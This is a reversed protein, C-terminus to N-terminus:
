VHSVTYTNRGTRWVHAWTCLWVSMLPTRQGLRWARPEGTDLTEPSRARHATFSERCRKRYLQSRWAHTLLVLSVCLSVTHWLFRWEKVYVAELYECFAFLESFCMLSSSSLHLDDLSESVFVVSKLRVHPPPNANLKQVDRRSLWQSWRCQTARMRMVEQEILGEWKYHFLVCVNKM